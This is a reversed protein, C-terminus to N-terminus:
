QQPTQLKIFLAEVKKVVESPTFHAKVFYDLAGLEMGRTIDSEQGLNTLLIVQINKLKEEKKVETLMEIGDMKPMVIDLLVMDPRLGDQLMSLGQQGDQAVKVEYGSEIFKTQYMDSLFVDDEVILITKKNEM